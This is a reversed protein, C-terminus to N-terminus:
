NNAMSRLLEEAMEYVKMRPQGAMFDTIYEDDLANCGGNNNLEYLADDLNFNSYELIQRVLPRLINRMNIEDSTYQKQTSTKM